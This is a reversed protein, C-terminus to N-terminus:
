VQAAIVQRLLDLLTEAINGNAPVVIPREGATPEELAEFQSHLNSAPWYHDHRGALRAAVLCEDARLYILMVGQRDGITIKRYARKLNSCTIIGPEGAALREDIWQAIRTLWPWRDEDTLPHGSHMKAINAASHLDDGDQFPWGLLRQLEVAITTKGCGSVGMLTLVTKHVRRAAITAEAIDRVTDPSTDSPDSTSGLMQTDVM